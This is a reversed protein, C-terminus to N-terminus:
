GAKGRKPMEVTKDDTMEVTKDDAELNVTLSIGTDDGDADDDNQGQMQATADLEYVTATSMERTIEDGDEGLNSALDEAARLIEENLRQTATLEDEYDQELIKYDAEQSLTYEDKILSDDTDPVEVAELDRETVDAPDPVKTADVIVSMDYDDADEPLVESELISEPNINLPPIIDTEPRDPQSAREDPLELDINTTSAFAFEETVDVASGEELGTGTVLDADLALNEATPSDDELDYDVDGIAEVRQTDTARRRPEPEAVAPAIPTSGFRGRFWGFALLASILAIGGGVIWALWSTGVDEAPEPTRIIAMSGNPAASTTAPGELETDPIVVSNDTVTAIPQTVIDGPQLEDVVPETPLTTEEAASTAPGASFAPDLISVPEQEAPPAPESLEEPTYTTVTPAPTTEVPAPEAAPAVTLTAGSGLDPIDLWAGAKLKNINGDLFADPNAAFIANAAPWLGVPRDAIRQAIGSLTDGPQVRYRGAIAIPEGITAATTTRMTPRQAQTAPRSAAAQAVPAPLTESPDVFLMYERTLHPTYPCRIAVRMSALPERMAAKGTIAIVGNTVVVSADRVSPLGGSTPGSVISVCTDDIQENPALAYTISARLPQGLTSRVKIDALELAAVPVAALSGGVAVLATTLRPSKNM